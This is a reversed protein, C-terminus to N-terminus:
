NPTIKAIQLTASETGYATNPYLRYSLTPPPIPIGVSNPSAPEWRNSPGFYYREKTDVAEFIIHDTTAEWYTWGATRKYLIGEKSISIEDGARHLHKPQSTTTSQSTENKSRKSSSNCSRVVMTFLLIAGIIGVAWMAKPRWSDPDKERIKIKKVETTEKVVKREGDEPKTTSSKKSM